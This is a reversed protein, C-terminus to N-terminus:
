AFHRLRHCNACLLECKSAENLIVELKKNTHILKSVCEEKDNSHHHFDYVAHPYTNGCDMCKDGLLEVAATRKRRRRLKGQKASCKRCRNGKFDKKDLEVGCDRCNPQSNTLSYHSKINMRGLWKHVWSKTVGLTDAIEQYTLGKEALSPLEQKLLEYDM